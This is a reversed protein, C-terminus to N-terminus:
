TAFDRKQRCLEIEKSNRRSASDCQTPTVLRAGFIAAYCKTALWQNGGRMSHWIAMTLRREEVSFASLRAAKACAPRMM